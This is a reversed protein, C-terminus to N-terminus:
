AGWLVVLASYYIWVILGVFVQLAGFVNFRLTAGLYASLVMEGVTFLVATVLAGLLNDRWLRRCTGSGIGTTESHFIWGSTIEEVRPGPWPEPPPPPTVPRM